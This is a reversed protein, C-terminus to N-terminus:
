DFRSVKYIWESVENPTCHGKVEDYGFNYSKDDKDWIMIEADSSSHIDKKMEGGWEGLYGHECYNGKGFQVSITWENEFTIRFGKNMTSSFGVKTEKKETTEM